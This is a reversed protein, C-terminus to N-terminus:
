APEVLDDIGVKLAFLAQLATRHVEEAEVRRVADRLARLL